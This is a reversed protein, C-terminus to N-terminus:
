PIFDEFERYGLSLLQERVDLYYQCAVIIFANEIYRPKEIKIGYFFGSKHNDFVLDMKKPFYMCLFKKAREGAGFLILKDALKEGAEEM